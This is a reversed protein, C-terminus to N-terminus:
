KRNLEQKIANATEVQEMPVAKRRNEDFHIGDGSKRPILHFHAHMVAQGAAKGNNQVVNIGEAGSVNKIAPVLKKIALVIEKLYKDEVDEIKEFHKKPIVLTHGILTGAPNNDLFAFVYKNEFVVAVEIEHKAIKCFICGDKYQEM